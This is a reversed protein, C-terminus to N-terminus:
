STPFPKKQRGAPLRRWAAFGALGLGAVLAFTVPEPVLSVSVGDVYAELASSGSGTSGIMVTDWSVDTVGTVTRGLIGDVFFAVTTGGSLREIDFRHWGVSRDPAGPANLNFWGTWSGALVRGKYKTASYLEGPATVTNYMGAALLQNMGGPNAPDFGFGPYGRVEGYARPAWLPALTM